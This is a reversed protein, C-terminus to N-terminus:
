EIGWDRSMDTVGGVVWLNLVMIRSWEPDNPDALRQFMLGMVDLISGLRAREAVLAGAESAFVRIREQCIAATRLATSAWERDEDRCLDALMTELDEFFAAVRERAVIQAPTETRRSTM